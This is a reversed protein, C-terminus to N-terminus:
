ALLIFISDSFQEHLRLECCPSRLRVLAPRGRTTNWTWHIISIFGSSLSLVEFPMLSWLAPGSTQPSTSDSDLHFDHLVTVLYPYAMKFIITRTAAYTTSAYHLKFLRSSGQRPSVSLDASCTKQSSDELASKNNTMKLVASDFSSPHRWEHELVWGCVWSWNWTIIHNLIENERFEPTYM